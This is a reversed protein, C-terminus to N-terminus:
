DPFDFLFYRTRLKGLLEDLQEKDFYEIVGLSTVLDVKPLKLKPDAGDAVSFSLRKAFPSKLRRQEAVEIAAPSIDVGIVKKAGAEALRLAFRGTGCGIDLVTLGKVHPAAMRLAADMRVYMGDGRLVAAVREALPMRGSADRHYASAEWRLINQRWYEGQQARSDPQMRAENGAAGASRRKRWAGILQDAGILLLLWLGLRWQINLPLAHRYIDNPDSNWVFVIQPYALLIMLIPALLMTTRERLALAAAFAALLSAAGFVFIGFRMPYLLEALRTGELIPRFGTASYYYLNPALVATLDDLPDQLAEAKFHWLSRIFVKTGDERLWTRFDELREDRAFALGDWHGAKGSYELLAPSVPMGQSQYFAMYQENPLVRLGIVNLLATYPHGGASSLMSSLAFIIVLSGGVLLFRAARLRLLMLLLLVAGALGLLYASSGRAFALLAALGVVIGARAPSWSRCLLLAAAVFLAWLSYSLSEALITSDWLIIQQTLSFGLVVAFAPLKLAYARMVYACAAALCVWSLISIILQATFITNFDSGLIKFFLPVIFPKDSLWFERSSLPHSAILVYAITDGFSSRPERVFGANQVRMWAYLAALVAASIWLAFRELLSARRDGNLEHM